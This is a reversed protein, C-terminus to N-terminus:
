HDNIEHLSQSRNSTADFLLRVPRVAGEGLACADGPMAEHLVSFHATIFLTKM